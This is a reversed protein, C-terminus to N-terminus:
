RGSCDPSGTGSTGYGCSPPPFARFIWHAACGIGATIRRVSPRPRVGRSAGARIGQLGAGSGFLDPDITTIGCALSPAFNEGWPLERFPKCLPNQRNEPRNRHSEPRRLRVVFRSQVPAWTPCPSFAPVVAPARTPCPSFALVVAPAWTPCPSFASVAAPASVLYKLRSPFSAAGM